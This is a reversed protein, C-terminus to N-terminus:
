IGIPIMLACLSLLTAPISVISGYMMFKGIGFKVENDKLIKMFMIGALAGVPTVFACLNSAIVVAYISNTLVPAAVLGEMGHLVSTFFMSMPINNILNGSLFSIIGLVIFHQGSMAKAVVEIFGVDDLASVIIAMSLLFPILEYPLSKFAQGFITLKQKAALLYILAVIYTLVACILPIYWIDLGLYPSIIMMIVMVALGTLGIALLKPNPKEIEEDEIEIKEKLKKRFLLYVLLLSVGGAIITPIFMKVAYQLFTIGFSTCLYINTPNDIYFFMSWANAMVFEAVIYPTADIKARKTFYCIFPTFTLILIDNSTFITLVICIASFVFFLKTQSSKAKKLALQAVYRFFGIKDLLVSLSTCSLFIVLIKIPNINASSIFVNKLSEPTIFRCAICIIAGFLCAIWYAGIKVKGLKIKVDFVIFLLMALLTIGIVILPAVM